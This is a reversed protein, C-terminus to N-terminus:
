HSDNFALAFTCLFCTCRLQARTLKSTSLDPLMGFLYTKFETGRKKALVFATKIIYQFPETFSDSFKTGLEEKFHPPTAKQAKEHKM